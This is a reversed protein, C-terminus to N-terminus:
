RLPAGHRYPRPGVLRVGGARGLMLWSLLTAAARLTAIPVPPLLRAGTVQALVRQAHVAGSFAFDLRRSLEVVDDRVSTILSQEPLSRVPLAEAM